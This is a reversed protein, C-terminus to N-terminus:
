FKLFLVETIIKKQIGQMPHIKLLLTKKGTYTKIILGM